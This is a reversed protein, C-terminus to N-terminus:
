ISSGRLELVTIGHPHGDLYTGFAPETNARTALFRWSGSRIVRALFTDVAHRGAFWTRHPPMELTVDATLLRTLLAPDANEFAAAFQDLTSRQAGSSPEVTNDEAPSV